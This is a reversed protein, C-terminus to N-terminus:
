SVGSKLLVTEIRADDALALLYKRTFGDTSDTELATPLVGISAEAALRAIYAAPSTEGLDIDSLPPAMTVPTCVRGDTVLAEIM